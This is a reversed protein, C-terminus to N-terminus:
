NCSALQLVNSPIWDEVFDNKFRYMNVKLSLPQQFETPLQGAIATKCTDNIKAQEAFNKALHLLGTSITEDPSTIEINGDIGLRSSASVLSLPNKIFQNAIIRINGGQGENAQAILKANNMVLFQANNLTLSGGNGVGERVSASINSDNLYLANDINLSIGGGGASIAETTIAGNHAMQIQNANIEITGANGGHEQKIWQGNAYFYHEPNSDGIVKAFDGQKAKLKELDAMTQVTQQPNLDIWDQGTYITAADGIQAINGTKVLTLNNVDTIQTIQRSTNLRIWQNDAYVFQGAQQPNSITAIPYEGELDFQQPLANLEDMSSLNFQNVQVFDVHIDGDDEFMNTYIFDAAKGNGMDLVRIREGLQYDPLTENPSYGNNDKRVSQFPKPTDLVTTVHQDMRQWTDLVLEHHHTYIYYGSENANESKVEVVQGNSFLYQQNLQYLEEVSSVPDLPIRSPILHSGVNVYYNIKGNGLDAAQITDGRKVLLEDREDINTFQYRNVFQSESAINASTDINLQNVTLNIHGAQGGGKSSTSIRGKDSMNLTHATLHINGAAGSQPNNDQSSAYIGSTSQNVNSVSYTKLYELQLPGPELLEIHSADGSINVNDRVAIDITGSSAYNNTSSTITAGDSLKLSQAQLRINGSRNSNDGIGLSRAYIGSAFGNESEGHPNVGQIDMEGQVDIDIDGGIGAYFGLRSFSTSSINAGDRLVLRGAKITINGADGAVIGALTPSSESSIKSEYGRNTGAMRLTDTAEIIFSGANGTRRSLSLFFAGKDFYVNKATVHTTNANGSGMSLNVVTGSSLSLTDNLDLRIIGADGAGFTMNAILASNLQLNDATFTVNGAESTGYGSAILQYGNELLIQEATLFVNGATDPQYYAQSIVAQPALNSGTPRRGTGSFRINQEANIHIDAAKGTSRSTTMIATNGKFTINKANLSISGADGTQNIQGKEVKANTHATISSSATEDISSIANTATLRIDAGRGLGVVSADIKTGKQLVIDQAVIDIADANQSGLTQAILQSDNLIFQGSRIFIGGGSEGSTEFTSQQTISIEGQLATPNFDSFEGVEGMTALYLRGAPVKIQANSLSIDGATLSFAKGQVINLQSSEVSLNAPSSTLFGFTAIPAATLIDREPFRAHFEGGDSLKLYDATSAHFSGQLDLQAHEGFVIGYPNLFYFDANPITSRITGNIFSAEGGIVRSIINQISDSGSFQAIEGQDLNFSEFTHFLNNGVTQGVDQSIDYVGDVVPLQYSSVSLQANNISIEAQAVNTLCVLLCLFGRM